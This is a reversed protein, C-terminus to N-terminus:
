PPLVLPFTRSAPAVRGSKYTITSPSGHHDRPTFPCLRFYNISPWPSQITHFAKSLSSGFLSDAKRKKEKSNSANRGDRKNISCASPSTFDRSLSNFTFDTCSLPLFPHCVVLYKSAALSSFIFICVHMRVWDRELLTNWPMGGKLSAHIVELPFLDVPPCTVSCARHPPLPNSGRM